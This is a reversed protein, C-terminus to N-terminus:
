NWMRVGTTEQLLQRLFGGRCQSDFQEMYQYSESQFAGNWNHDVADPSIKSYPTPFTLGSPDLAPPHPEQPPSLWGRELPIQPLATLERLSTRASGRGGFPKRTNQATLNCPYTNSKELPIYM